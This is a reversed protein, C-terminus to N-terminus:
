WGGGDDRWSDVDRPLEEECAGLVVVFRGRDSLYECLWLEVDAPHGHITTDGESHCHPDITAADEVGAGAAVTGAVWVSQSPVRSILLVRLLLPCLCRTLLSAPLPPSSFPCAPLHVLLLSLGDRDDNQPYDEISPLPSASVVVANKLTKTLLSSARLHGPPAPQSFFRGANHFFMLQLQGCTHSADLDRPVRVIQTADDVAASFM